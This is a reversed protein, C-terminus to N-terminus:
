SSRAWRSIRRAVAEESMGDSGAGAKGGSNVFNTLLIIVVVPVVFSAVVAGVLQKPTKIPGEHVDNDDTHPANSM